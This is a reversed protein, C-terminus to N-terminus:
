PDMGGGGSVEESEVGFWDRCRERDLGGGVLDVGCVFAEADGMARALRPGRGRASSWPLPAASRGERDQMLCGAADLARLEM